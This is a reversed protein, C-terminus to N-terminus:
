YIFHIKIVKVNHELNDHDNFKIILIYVNVFKINAM